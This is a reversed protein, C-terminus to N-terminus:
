QPLKLEQGIKLQNPGDLTNQNAQYIDQWRTSTKYVRLSISSLTDGKKVIYNAISTPQATQPREKPTSAEETPSESRQVSIKPKAKDKVFPTLLAPDSLPETKNRITQLQKQLHKNEQKLQELLTLLERQKDHGAYPRGPLSEIFQRKAAEIRQKVLNTKDSNPKLRLYQYFHYLALIPEESHDLYLLGANLHSEPAERRHNIVKLFTELAAAEQGERKLREARHFAPEEQERKVELSLPNCAAQLGFILTLAFFINLRFM